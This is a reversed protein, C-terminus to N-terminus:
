FVYAVLRGGLDKQKAEKHSIVGQSTSVVIIGIERSPLYRSEFKVFGDKKVPFRPKIVALENIKGRLTIEVTREKEKFDDIYGSEKLVKLVSLVIRSRPVECLKRGINEANKIASLADSLIDHQM